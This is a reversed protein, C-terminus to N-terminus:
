GPMLIALLGVWFIVLVVHVSLLVVYASMGPVGVDLLPLDQPHVRKKALEIYEELYGESRWLVIGSALTLTLGLIALFPIRFQFALGTLIVDAALFVSVATWTITDQHIILDVLIPVGHGELRQREEPTDLNLDRSNPPPDPPTPDLMLILGPKPM